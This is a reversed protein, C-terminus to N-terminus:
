FPLISTDFFRNNSGEKNKSSMSNENGVNNQSSMSNENSAKNQSNTISDDDFLSDMMRDIAIKCQQDKGCNDSSMSTANDNLIKNEDFNRSIRTEANIYQILNATVMAAIMLLSTSMLIIHKNMYNVNM